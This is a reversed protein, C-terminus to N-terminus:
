PIGARDVRATLQEVRITLHDVVWLLRDLVLGAPQPLRATRMGDIQLNDVQTRLARLEERLADDEIM